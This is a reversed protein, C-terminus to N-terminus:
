RGIRRAVQDIADEAKLDSLNDLDRELRQVPWIEGEHIQQVIAEVPDVFEAQTIPGRYSLATDVEALRVGKRTMRSTAAALEGTFYLRTTLTADAAPTNEYYNLRNRRMKVTTASLPANTGYLPGSGWKSDRAWSTQTVKLAGEELVTWADRWDTLEGAIATLVADVLNAQVRITTM